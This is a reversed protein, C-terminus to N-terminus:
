FIKLNLNEEILIRKEEDTKKTYILIDNLISCKYISENNSNKIEILPNGNKNFIWSQDKKNNDSFTIIFYDNNLYIPCIRYINKVNLQLNLDTDNKILIDGNITKKTYFLDNGIYAASFAKEIVQTDYFTTFNLNTKSNLYYYIVPTNKGKSFGATYGLYLQSEKYFLHPNCELIVKGYNELETLTSLNFNEENSNKYYIKWPDIYLKNGFFLEKKNISNCYLLSKEKSENLFLFPQNQM